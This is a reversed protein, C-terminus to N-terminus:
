AHGAARELLREYGPLLGDWTHDRLILARAREGIRAGTDRDDLLEGLADALGAPTGAVRAHVGDQVAIGELAVPTAAVPLGAGMLTLTKMKIGVGAWLPVVAAACRALLAELDDVYGLLRVGPLSAALRRTEPAPARGAIFLVAGTEGLPRWGDRLFRRLGDVNADYHHDGVWAVARVAARPDAAAPPPIASPVAAPRWGYVEAFRDAEAHSTVIVLGARRASRGEFSRNLRGALGHVARGGRRDWGSASRPLSWGKVNQKDLVLPVSDHLADVYVCANDDLMLATDFGPALELARRELDPSRARLV